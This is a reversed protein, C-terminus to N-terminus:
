MTDPRDYVWQHAEQTQWVVFLYDQTHPLINSFDGLNHDGKSLATRQFDWIATLRPCFPSMKFDWM